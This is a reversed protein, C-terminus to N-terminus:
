KKLIKSIKMIQIWINELRAKSPMDNRLWHLNFTSTKAKPESKVYKWAVLHIGLGWNSKTVTKM